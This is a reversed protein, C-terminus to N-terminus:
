HTFQSSQQDRRVLPPSVQLVVYYIRVLPNVHGRHLDEEM